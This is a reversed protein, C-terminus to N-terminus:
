GGTKYLNEVPYVGLLSHLFAPIRRLYIRGNSDALYARDLTGPQSFPQPISLHLANTEEHAQRLILQRCRHNPLVDLQNLVYNWTQNWM